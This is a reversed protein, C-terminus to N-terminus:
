RNTASRRRPRRALPPPSAPSRRRSCLAPSSVRNQGLSSPKRRPKSWFTSFRVAFGEQAGSRACPLSSPTLSPPATPLQPSMAALACPRFLVCHRGYFARVTEEGGPSEGPSRRPLPSTAAASISPPPPALTAAAGLQELVDLTEPHPPRARRRSRLYHRPGRM